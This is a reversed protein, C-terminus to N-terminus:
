GRHYAVALADWVAVRALIEARQAELRRSRVSSGFRDKFAGFTGEIVPRRRYRCRFERRHARRDRLMASWGPAGGADIRGINRRLDMVPWGGRDVVAQANRRSLYGKDLAVNGVGVESPVRELLPGLERVDNTRADTVRAALFFPFQARTAVLAHLKVFAQRQVSPVRAAIWREYRRTSLGTGDGALNERPRCIAGALTRILREFYEVPIRPALAAVTPAAPLRRFGMRRALEPLAVLTAHVEDYSWGELARLLLFRVLDKPDTPPRGPTGPPRIPFPPSLRTVLDALTRLVSSWGHRLFRRYRAWNLRRYRAPSPTKAASSESDSRASLGGERDHAYVGSRGRLGV